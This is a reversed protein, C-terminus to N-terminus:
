VILLVKEESVVLHDFFSFSFLCPGLILRQHSILWPCPLLYKNSNKSSNKKKKCHFVETVLLSYIYVRVYMNIYIYVRETNVM